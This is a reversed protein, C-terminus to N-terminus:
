AKPPRLPAEVALPRFEPPNWQLPVASAPVGALVFPVETLCGTGLCASLDCVRAKCCDCPMEGKETEGMACPMESDAMAATALTALEGAVALAPSVAGSVILAAALLLHMLVRPAQRWKM